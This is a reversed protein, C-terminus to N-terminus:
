GPPPGLIKRALGLAAERDTITGELQADMIETLAQKFKPGPAYGLGILDKGTVLPPPKLEEAKMSARMSELKDVYTDDAKSGLTDARVLKLLDAIHDHGLLRKLTSPRMLEWQLFALHKQVLWVVLDKQENSLKLRDAIRASMDAGVHDHNNFRIRDARVLTPPKGIDHLLVALALEFTPSKLTDLALKTHTWVDGEPHYEPPQPVGEMADVEPLIHRLLGTARLKELARSRSEDVLIKALEDRIREGSVQVIAPAMDRIASETAADIAFGLREALRVARLLRLRDETFRERPDGIARLVKKQLDAKGGVFDIVKDTDPDFFMGNITFDRRKADEEPTSFTVKDPHRGDQYKGDSRFTAIEFKHDGELVLIVGFARGVAFTKPFLKEVRDPPAATAIDIEDPHLGLLRDRVYGGAFYSEFGAARLRNLVSRAADLLPSM